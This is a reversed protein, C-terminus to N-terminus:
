GMGTLRSEHMPLEVTSERHRHVMECEPHQCSVHASSADVRSTVVRRPEHQVERDITSETHHEKAPDMRVRGASVPQHVMSRFGVPYNDFRVGRHVNCAM